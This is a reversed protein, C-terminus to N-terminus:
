ISYKKIPSLISGPDFRRPHNTNEKGRRKGKKRGGENKGDDDDDSKLKQLRLLQTSGCLAMRTDPWSM